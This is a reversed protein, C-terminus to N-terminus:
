EEAKGRGLVGAGQQERGDVNVVRHGLGLEVVHVAAPVGQRIADHAGCTFAALVVDLM